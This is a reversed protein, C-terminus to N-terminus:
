MVAVGVGATGVGEDRKGELEEGVSVIAGGGKGADKEVRVGIGLERLVEALRLGELGLGELGM